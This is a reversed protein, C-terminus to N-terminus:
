VSWMEGTKQSKCAFMEGREYTMLQAHPLTSSQPVTNCAPLVRTRNGILENSKEISRIRRAASHGQSRSLRYGFHTGPINRPPLPRGARLASRVAM